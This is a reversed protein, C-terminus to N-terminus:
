CRISVTNGLNELGSPTSLKPSSDLQMSKERSSIENSEKSKNGPTSKRAKESVNGSDRDKRESKPAMDCSKRYPDLTTHYETQCRPSDDLLKKLFGFIGLRKTPRPPLSSHNDPDIKIDLEEM